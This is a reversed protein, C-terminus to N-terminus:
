SRAVYRAANAIIEPNDKFLGIARNCTECLLGRVQGTVHDHDVCWNWDSRNPNDKHKGGLEDVKCIACCHGQAEFLGAYQEPTIGYNAMLRYRRKANPKDWIAEGPPMRRRSAEGVEGHKQLRALHMPCYTGDSARKQDCGLVKCRREGTEYQRIPLDLPLGNDFRYKHGSCLGKAKHPRGCGEVSCIRGSM